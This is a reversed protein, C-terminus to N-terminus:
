DMLVLRKNLVGKESRISLMYLGAPLSPVDISRRNDGTHFHLANIQEVLRGDMSFLQIDADFA